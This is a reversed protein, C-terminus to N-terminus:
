LAEEVLEIIDRVQLSAELGAAKVADTFMVYDKPCAVALVTVGELSAAERVRMDAPRQKEGAIEEMWIRGGGAGCCFSKWRNRPMEVLEVGVAQLIRRPADYVGNYRGLYCPDHYTVRYPLRKSFRLRGSGILEDLLETYHLVRGGNARPYENKLTNYTHPDTTVIDHFRCARMAEANHDRLTEFLGEEGVRRVDNGANWEGDSLTGFDVGSRAFVGATLATLGQCRADYSATDGVVWLFDVPEKRADKVPTPGSRTWKTRAKPTAKFSNGYRSLSELTGQLGANLEGRATLRRRMELVKSLHNNFVPCGDVCAYCTMCSWVADPTQVSLFLDEASAVGGDAASALPNPRTGGKALVADRLRMMMHMPDMAAGSEHAPCNDTCRGCETCAFANLLSVWTLDRVTGAGPSEVREAAVPRMAGAPEPRRFFVNFVAFVIHSHKTYPFWALFTFLSLIHVWWMASELSPALGGWGAGSVAAALLASVPRWSAMATSADQVIRAANYFLFSVLITLIFLLMVIAARNGEHMLRRPKSVTRRYIAMLVGVIGLAAVLDQGLYLPGDLPGLPLTYGPIYGATVIEVVSFFLFVFAWFIFAHLVGAPRERYIKRQFIGDLVVNKIRAGLHDWWREPMGKRVGRVIQFVRASFLLGSVVLIGTLVMQDLNM